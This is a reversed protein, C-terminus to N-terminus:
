IEGGAVVWIVSYPISTAQADDEGGEEGDGNHEREEVKSSM